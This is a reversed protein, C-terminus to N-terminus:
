PVLRTGIAPQALAAEVIGARAGPAILVEGVGRRLADVAAELKAQMGGTAVGGQAFAISSLSLALLSVFFSRLNRIKTRCITRHIATRRLMARHIMTKRIVTERIMSDGEIRGNWLPPLFLKLPQVALIRM